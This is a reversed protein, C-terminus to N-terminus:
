MIDAVSPDWCLEKPSFFGKCAQYEGREKLSEVEAGVMREEAKGGLRAGWALLAQALRGGGQPAWLCWCVAGQM